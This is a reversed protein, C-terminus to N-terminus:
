KLCLERFKAIERGSDLEVLLMLRMLSSSVHSRPDQLSSSKESWEQVRVLMDRFWNRALLESSPLM